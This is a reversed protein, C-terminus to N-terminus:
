ITLFTSLVKSYAKVIKKDSNPKLLFNDIQFPPAIKTCEAAMFIDNYVHHYLEVRSIHKKVYRAFRGLETEYDAYLRILDLADTLKPKDIKQITHHSLTQYTLSLIYKLRPGHTDMIVKLLFPM